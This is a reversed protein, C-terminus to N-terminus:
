YQSGMLNHLNKPFNLWGKEVKTVKPMAQWNPAQSKTDQNLFCFLVCVCVWIFFSVRGKRVQWGRVWIGWFLILVMPWVQRTKSDKLFSRYLIMSCSMVPLSFHWLERQISDLVSQFYLSERSSHIHFVLTQDLSLEHLESFCFCFFRYKKKKLLYFMRTNGVPCMKRGSKGLNCFGPNFLDSM